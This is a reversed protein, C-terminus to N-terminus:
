FPLHTFFILVFVPNLVEMFSFTNYLLSQEPFYDQQRVLGCRIMRGSHFYIDNHEQSAISVPPNKAILQM